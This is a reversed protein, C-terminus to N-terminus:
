GRTFTFDTTAEGGEEVTVEATRTGLKEHWVQIEYTGPPLGSIEFDGDPGTTDFYPHSMVAVWANMWPHVDCKVRFMDEPSELTEQATTREAPMGINFERNKDPLAHVNHLLGDSNEFQLPQGAMVGVVHPTYQCGEQDIVVPEEPVPWRADPLGSTVKVFVNGLSEEDEGLVLVNPQVPEDHKEECAPDADMSIPKLDPIPGDYTVHGTIRATGTPAQERTPTPAQSRTEGPEESVAPAEASEPAEEAGGGCGLTLIGALGVAMLVKTWDDSRGM